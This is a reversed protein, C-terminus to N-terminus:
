PVHEFPPEFSRTTFQDVITLESAPAKNGTPRAVLDLAMVVTRAERLSPLASFRIAAVLGTPQFLKRPGGAESRSLTGKAADLSYTIAVPRGGRLATLALRGSSCEDLSVMTRIDSRLSGSIARLTQQMDIMASGKQVTSGTRRWLFLSAGMILSALFVVVIIETLTLARSRPRSRLSGATTLDLASM